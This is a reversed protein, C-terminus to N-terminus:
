ARRLHPFVRTQRVDRVTQARFADRKPAAARIRATLAKKDADLAHLLEWESDKKAIKRAAFIVVYEEWGDYGELVDADNVLDTHAAVYEVIFVNGAGPVPLLEITGPQLEYHTPRSSVAQRLAPEDLPGFEDLSYGSSGQLRISILRLFGTPLNYKSTGSVTTITLPTASRFYSRGRSEILLDRLETAGQNIYRTINAPPHRDDASEIDAEQCVDARLNALTRTRAAM